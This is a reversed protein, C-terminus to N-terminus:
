GVGIGLKAVKITLGPRVYGSSKAARHHRRGLGSIPDFAVSAPTLSDHTRRKKGRARSQRHTPVM